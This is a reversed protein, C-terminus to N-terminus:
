IMTNEELVIMLMFGITKQSYTNHLVDVAPNHKGYFTAMLMLKIPTLLNYGSIGIASMAAM